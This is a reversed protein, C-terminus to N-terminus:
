LLDRIGRLYLDWKERCVKCVCVTRLADADRPVRRLVAESPIENTFEFTSIKM